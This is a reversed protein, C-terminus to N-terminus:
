VSHNYPHQQLKLKVNKKAHGPQCFIIEINNAKQLPVLALIIQLLYASSLPGQTKLNECLLLYSIEIVINGM